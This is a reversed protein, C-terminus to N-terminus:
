LTRIISVPVTVLTLSLNSVAINIAYLVSFGSLILEKRRSLRKSAYVGRWRLWSGGLTSFLAHLATLTYPFPFTMLVSKNSLTLLLNFTFYLILWAFQSNWLPSLRLQALISSTAARFSQTRALVRKHSRTRPPTSIFSGRELVYLPLTPSRGFTEPTSPPFAHRLRPSSQSLNRIHIRPSAFRKWQRTGATDPADETFHLGEVDDEDDYVASESVLDKELFGTQHQDDM